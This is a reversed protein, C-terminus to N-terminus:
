KGVTVINKKVEYIKFTGDQKGHVEAHNGRAIISKILVFFEREKDSENCATSLIKSRGSKFNDKNIKGAM